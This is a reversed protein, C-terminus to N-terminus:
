LLETFCGGGPRGSTWGGTSKRRPPPPCAPLTRQAIIVTMAAFFLHKASFLLDPVARRQWRITISPSRSATSPFSAFYRPREKARERVPRSQLDRASLM